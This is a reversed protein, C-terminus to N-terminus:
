PARCLHQYRRFRYKGKGRCDRERGGPDETGEALSHYYEGEVLQLYMLRCTLVAFIAIIIWYLYRFRGDNNKKKMLAELM